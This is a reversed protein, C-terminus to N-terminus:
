PPYIADLLRIAEAEMRLVLETVRSKLYRYVVVTPMAIALGGATTFLATSIGGALLEPRVASGSETLTSFIQIMGLVTGFLGLLPSVAAVTGLAGLYRELDYVVQRGADEIRELAQARQLGPPNLGAALVRGLPSGAAVQRLLEADLTHKQFREWLMPVLDPPAVRKPALSWFREIVIATAIVSVGVLVWMVWGGANIFEIV